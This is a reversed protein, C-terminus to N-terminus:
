RHQAKGSGEERKNIQRRVAGLLQVAKQIEPPLNHVTNRRMNERLTIQELNEIRNDYPDGNLHWICCGRRPWRGTASWWSYHTLSFWSRAGTDLKIQLQGDTTIRLAGVIYVEPDWRKSVGGPKFWTEAMRGRAYGPRRLGASWSAQGKKFRTEAGVIPLHSREALMRQYALSKKLGLQAAKGTIQNVTRGFLTALDTTLEDPYRARLVALDADTWFRRKM